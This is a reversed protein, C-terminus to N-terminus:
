FQTRAAEALSEASFLRDFGHHHGFRARFADLKMSELIERVAEDVDPGGEWSPPAVVHVGFGPELSRDPCYVTDARIRGTALADRLQVTWVVDVRKKVNGGSYEEVGRGEQPLPGQYPLYSSRERSEVVGRGAICFLSKADKFRGLTGVYWGHGLVTFTLTVVLVRGKNRRLVGRDQDQWVSREQCVLIPCPAVNRARMLALYDDLMRQANNQWASAVADADAGTAKAIKQQKLLEAELENM